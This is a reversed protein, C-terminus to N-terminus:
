HDDEINAIEFILKAWDGHIDDQVVNPGDNAGFLLFTEEEDVLGPLKHLVFIGGVEEEAESLTSTFIVKADGGNGLVNLVEHTAFHTAGDNRVRGHLKEELLGCGGDINKGVNKFESFFFLLTEGVEWDTLAEEKSTLVVDM